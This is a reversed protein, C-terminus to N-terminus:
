FSKRGIKAWTENLVCRGNKDIQADQGWGGVCRAPSKVSLGPRVYEM